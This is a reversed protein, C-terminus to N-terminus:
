IGFPPVPPPKTYTYSENPLYPDKFFTDTPHAKGGRTPILIDPKM